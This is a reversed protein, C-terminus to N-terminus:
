TFRFVEDLSWPEEDKEEEEEEEDDDKDKEEKWRLKELIKAIPDIEEEKNNEGM